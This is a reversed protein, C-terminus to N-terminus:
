LKMSKAVGDARITMVATLRASHKDACKVKASGKRSREAWIHKLPTDFYIATEDVNYINNRFRGSNKRTNLLRSLSVM